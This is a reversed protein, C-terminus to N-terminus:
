SFRFSVPDDIFHFLPSIPEFTWAFKNLQRRKEIDIGWLNLVEQGYFNLFEKRLKGEHIEGTVSALGENTL